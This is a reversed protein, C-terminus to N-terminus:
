RWDGLNSAPPSAPSAMVFSDVVGAVATFFATTMLVGFPLRQRNAIAPNFSDGAEMAIVAGSAAAVSSLGYVLARRWHGSIGQAVWPAAAFGGLVLFAGVRQRDPREDQAWLAGGVILPGLATLAGAIPGALGHRAPGPEPAPSTASPSQLTFVPVPPSKAIPIVSRRESPEPVAPPGPEGEAAGPSLPSAAVVPAALFFLAAWTPITARWRPRVIGFSLHVM